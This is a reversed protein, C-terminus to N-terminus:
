KQVRELADQIMEATGDLAVAIKEFIEQQGLVDKYADVLEKIGDLDEGHERLRCEQKTVAQVRKQLGYVRTMVDQYLSEGAYQKEEDGCFIRESYICATGDGLLEKLFLKLMDLQTVFQPPILYVGGTPRKSIGKCARIVSFCLDRIDKSNFNNRNKEISAIVRESLKGTVDVKGSDKDLVVKTDQEYGGQENEKDVHLDMIGFVVSAENERIKEVVRRVAGRRNHFDDIGRRVCTRESPLKLLNRIGYKDAVSVTTEIPVKIDERVMWWVNLPMANSNMFMGKRQKLATM